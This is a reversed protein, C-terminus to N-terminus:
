DHFPPHPRYEHAKAEGGARKASDGRLTIEAGVIILVLGLVEVLTLPEGLLIVGYILAFIPTLYNGLAAREEGVEAILQYYLMFTLATCLLGLLIVAIIARAGPADGPATIAAFPAVLVAGVSLSFLTTTSPPVNKDRYELKVLFSSIAGSAAAGLIALAGLLQGASSVSQLGVILAVGVLGVILGMAQVRNIAASRDFRPAFVAVFMPTSSLLVRALGSPVSLEGLSILIFPVAIALLGLLIAPLPRRLIDWMAARARGGQFLVIALLGIAGISAQFFAVEIPSFDELAYKILML